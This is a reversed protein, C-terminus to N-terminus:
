VQRDGQNLMAALASWRPDVQNARCDCDERNLDLGCMPCLGRCDAKCLPKIPEDTIVCQRLAEGLDIVHSADIRLAGEANGPLPVNRGTTIDVTPFFEEEIAIRSARTFEGLCRGCILSASIDLEGTVLVGQHTRLLNIEGQASDMIRQPGAFNEELGYTRTAGIPEKLLQAVNYRM